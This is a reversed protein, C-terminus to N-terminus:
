SQVESPFPGNHWFLQAAIVHKCLKQGRVEPAHHYYDKCSCRIIAGEERVLHVADPDSQSPVVVARDDEAVHKWHNAKYIDIGRVYRGAVQPFHDRVYTLKDDLYKQDM